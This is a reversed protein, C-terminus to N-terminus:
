NRTHFLVAFEIIQCKSNEKDIVILDFNGAEMVQDRQFSFDWIKYNDNDISAEPNNKYLKWKM